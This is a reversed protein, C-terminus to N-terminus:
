FTAGQVVVEGKAIADLNSGFELPDSGIYRKKPSGTGGTAGGGKSPRFLHPADASLDNAWEEPTLAEGPKRRSFVPQDGRLAVVQGDKLSFIQLGRALFDPVAREDVGAKSAADRLSNELTTRALQAQAEQERRTIENLRDQLPRVAAEVQQKTKEMFLRTVDEPSRIGERELQSARDRLRNYEAPDVSKLIRLREVADDFSAAGLEKLLKVNNDRFTALRNKAEEAAAKATAENSKAEALPGVYQPLDGDVKLIFSGGKEEYEGRLAEPIEDITQYVAKM